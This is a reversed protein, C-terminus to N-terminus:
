GVGPLGADWFRFLAYGDFIQRADVGLTVCLAVAARWLPNLLQPNVVILALLVVGILNGARLAANRLTAPLFPSLVGFGDLGPIPLMNLVLATAQLLALFALAAALEASVPALQLALVIAFLCLLNTAPGAVSTAARWLPTRIAATNVYVAGGPFGIGGM